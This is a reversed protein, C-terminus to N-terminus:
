RGPSPTPPLPKEGNMWKQIVNLVGDLDQEVQENSFRLVTIQLLNLYETREADHRIQDADAHVGGDVEIALGYAWCFFDLIYPGIAHQRRFKAGGLDKRRLGQWLVWEAHTPEGRHLRAAILMEPTTNGRTRRTM